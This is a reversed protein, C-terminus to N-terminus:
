ASMATAIAPRAVTSKDTPGNSPNMLTVRTCNNSAPATVEGNANKAYAIATPIAYWKIMPNIMTNTRM